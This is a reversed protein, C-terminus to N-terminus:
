FGHAVAEVNNGDPDRVSRATIGRTTSPTSPPRTSCRPASASPPKSSRTSPRRDAARFALHSERFGEGTHQRGSGSIPSTPGTASGDGFDMVRKGGITALVTDYFTASAELDACQISVHDIMVWHDRRQVDQRHRGGSVPKRGSIPRVPSWSGSTFTVAHDYIVMGRINEGDRM